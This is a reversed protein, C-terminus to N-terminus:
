FKGEYKIYQRINFYSLLIDEIVVLKDIATMTNLINNYDIRSNSISVRQVCSKFISKFKVSKITTNLLEPLLYFINDIRATLTERGGEDKAINNFFDHLNLAGVKDLNLPESHFAIKFDKCYSYHHNIARDNITDHPPITIANRFLRTSPYSYAKLLLNNIIIKDYEIPLTGLDYSKLKALDAKKYFFPAVYAARAKKSLKVMANHQGYLNEKRLLEFAFFGKDTPLKIANRDRRLKGSFEPTYFDSRKFQIYFPVITSMVGDYGLENEDSQSIRSIEIRKNQYYHSRNIATELGSIFDEEIFDPSIREGQRKLVM